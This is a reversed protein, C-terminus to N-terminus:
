SVPEMVHQAWPRLNGTEKQQTSRESIRFDEAFFVADALLSVTVYFVVTNKTENFIFM